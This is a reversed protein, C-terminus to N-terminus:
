QFTKNVFGKIPYLTALIIVRYGIGSKAFFLGIDLEMRYEFTHQGSLHWHPITFSCRGNYISEVSCETYMRVVELYKGDRFTQSLSWELTVNLFKRQYFIEQKKSEISRCVPVIIQGYWSHSVVYIVKINLPRPTAPTPWFFRM